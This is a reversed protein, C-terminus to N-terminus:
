GLGFFWGKKREAAKEKEDALLAQKGKEEDGKAKQEEKERKMKDAINNRAFAYAVGCLLAITM